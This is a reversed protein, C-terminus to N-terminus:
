LVGETHLWHVFAQAQERLLQQSEAKASQVAEPFATNWAADWRAWYEDESEESLRELEVLNGIDAMVMPDYFVVLGPNHGALTQAAERVGYVSVSSMMVPEGEATKKQWAEVDDTSVFEVAFTPELGQLGYAALDGHTTALCTEGERIVPNLDTVPLIAQELPMAERGLTLGAEALASSLIAFAEEESLFAPAAIAVCGIAGTGEGYEFLPVLSFSM